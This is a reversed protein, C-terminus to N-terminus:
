PFRPDNNRTVQVDVLQDGESLLTLVQDLEIRFVVSQGPYLQQPNIPQLQDNAEAVTIPRAGNHYTMSLVQPVETRNRVLPFPVGNRLTVQQKDIAPM